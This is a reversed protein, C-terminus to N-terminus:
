SLIGATSNTGWAAAFRMSPRKAKLLGIPKAGVQSDERINGRFHHMALVMLKLSM